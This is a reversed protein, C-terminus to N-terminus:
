ELHSSVSVTTELTETKVHATITGAGEGLRVEARGPGPSLLTAMTIQRHTRAVTAWRLVHAGPVPKTPCTVATATVAEVNCAYAIRLEETQGKLHFGPVDRTAAVDADTHMRSEVRGPRPLEFRDLILFAQADLLLFLRGCFDAMPSNEGLFGFARTADLRFGKALGSRWEGMAVRAEPPLGVGNIFLVNKAPQNMEFLDNRRASFTTELYDDGGRNGINEIFKERGVVVHFSLVDVMAHPDTTSGGRISMYLRPEPLRDALLAWDMGPYRRAVNEEFQPAATAERPHFLLLEAADAWWRIRDQPAPHCRDLV